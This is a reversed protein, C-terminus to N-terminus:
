ARSGRPQWSCVPTVGLIASPAPPRRPPPLKPAEARAAAQPQPELICPDRRIVPQDTPSATRTGNITGSVRERRCEADRRPNAIIVATSATSSVSTHSAPPAASADVELREVGHEDEVEVAYRGGECGGHEPVADAVLVVVYHTRVGIVGVSHAVVEEAASDLEGRVYKFGTSVARHRGLVDGGNVCGRRVPLSRSTYTGAAALPALGM